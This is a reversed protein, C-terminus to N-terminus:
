PRNTGRLRRLFAAFHLRDYLRSRMWPAFIMVPRDDRPDFVDIEVM